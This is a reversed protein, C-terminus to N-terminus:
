RRTDPDDSPSSDLLAGSEEREDESEDRREDSANGGPRTPRSLSTRPVISPWSPSSPDRTLDPQRIISNTRQRSLLPTTSVVSIPSLGLEEELPTPPEGPPPGLSALSMRRTSSSASSTQPTSQILSAISVPPMSVSAPLSSSISSMNTLTPTPSIDEAPYPPPEVAMSGPFYRPVFPAPGSMLPGNALRAEELERRQRRQSNRRRRWISLCIGLALAALVGVTGGIAGAFTAVNHKANAIRVGASTAASSPSGTLAEAAATVTTTVPFTEPPDSALATYNLYDFILVSGPQVIATLTHPGDPLSGINFISRSSYGSGETGPVHLFPVGAPNGDVLFSVNSISIMGPIQFTPVLAFFQAANGTFKITMTVINPVFNPDDLDPGTTAVTQPASSSTSASSQQPPPTSTSSSISSSSSSLSTSSASALDDSDGDHDDGEPKGGKGRRDVTRRALASSNGQDDSDRLLEFNTGNHWTGNLALASSLSACGPCYSSNFWTAPPEYDINPDTDKIIRNVSQAAAYSALFTLVLLSSSSTSRHLM